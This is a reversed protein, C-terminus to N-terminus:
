IKLIEVNEHNATEKSTNGGTQEKGNKFGPHNTSMRIGLEFIVNSFGERPRSEAVRNNSYQGTEDGVLGGLRKIHFGNLIFPNVNTPVETWKVNGQDSGDHRSCGGIKNPLFIIPFLATRGVGALLVSPVFTQSAGITGHNSALVNQKTSDNAGKEFSAHIYTM